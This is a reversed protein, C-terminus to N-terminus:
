FGQNPPQQGGLPPITQSAPQQVMQPQSNAYAPHVAGAVMPAPTAASQVPMGGVPQVTGDAQQVMMVGQQVKNDKLTFVFVLGLILVCVSCFIGFFGGAFGMLEGMDFAMETIVVSGNGTLEISWTGPTTFTLQGLYSHGPWDYYDCSQMESCPTFFNDADGDVVKVGIEKSGNADAFVYYVAAMEFEGDYTTPAQSSWKETGNPNEVAEGIFGSGSAMLVVSGILMIAGLGLTLKTVIHMCGHKEALCKLSKM